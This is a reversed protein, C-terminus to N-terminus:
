RGGEEDRGPEALAADIRNAYAVGECEECNGDPVEAGCSSAAAERRLEAALAEVRGIVRQLREARAFNNREHFTARRLERETEAAELLAERRAAAKIREVVDYTDALADCIESGPAYGVEDAFATCDCHDPNHDGAKFLAEREAETLEVPKETSM